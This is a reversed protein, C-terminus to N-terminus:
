HGSIKPLEPRGIRAAEGPFEGRFNRNTGHRRGTYLKTIGIANGPFETKRATTGPFRIIIAPDLLRSNVDKSEFFRGRNGSFRGEM